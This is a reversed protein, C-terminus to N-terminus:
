ARPQISLSRWVDLFRERDEGDIGSLTLLDAAHPARGSTELASLLTDLSLSREQATM